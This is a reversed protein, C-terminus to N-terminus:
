EAFSNGTLYDTNNQDQVSQVIWCPWAGSGGGTLKQRGGLGGAAPHHGANSPDGRCEMTPLRHSGSSVVVDGVIPHADRIKGSNRGFLIAASKCLDDLDLLMGRM